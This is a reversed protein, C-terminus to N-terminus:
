LLIFNIPNNEGFVMFPSEKSKRALREGQTEEHYDFTPKQQAMTQLFNFTPKRKAAKGNPLVLPKILKNSLYFFLSIM